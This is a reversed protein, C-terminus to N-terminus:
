IMPMRVALDCVVIITVLVLFSGLLMFQVSLANMAFVVKFLFCHIHLLVYANQASKSGFAMWSGYDHPVLIAAQMSSETYFCLKRLVM